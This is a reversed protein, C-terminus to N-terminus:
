PNRLEQLKLGHWSVLSGSPDMGMQPLDVAFRVPIDFEGTWTIPQGVTPQSLFTVIGTTTDITYHTTITQLVANKYVKITSGVPKNVIQLYSLPSMAYGKYMQYALTAAVGVGTTGLIGDGKDQYDMFDKFRFGHLRGRTTRFYKLLTTQNYDARQWDPVRLAESIDWVGLATSWASNRYENAGYTETVITQFGRGGVAWIAIDDPFRPTEIFAM